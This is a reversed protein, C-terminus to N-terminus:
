FAAALVTMVAFGTALGATGAGVRGPQHSAPIMEHSVVWLMAGAAAALAMPLAAGALTSAIVGFLGGVPEVLGTGLAILAARLPAAGLAVMASAVIWGEPINQLAIGLSMGHDAGAAAAVGVALGEPVNHIAIAAVVLAVNPQMGSSEVEEVHEHPLRRDLMQMAAVGALLAGATAIGLSWVADSAMVTQVAPVLLSFLSAALMMGGALGLMPAMLRESPRRLMLVPIAGLGTAAGALLSAELGQAAMPHAALWHVAQEIGFAVAVVAMAMGIWLHRRATPRAYHQIVLQTM